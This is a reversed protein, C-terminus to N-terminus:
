SRYAAAVTHIECRQSPYRELILMACSAARSFRRMEDAAMDPSADFSITGSWTM